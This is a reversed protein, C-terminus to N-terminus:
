PGREVRRRKAPKSDEAAALRAQRRAASLDAGSPLVLTHRRQWSVFADNLAACLQGDIDDGWLRGANSCRNHALTASRIFLTIETEGLVRSNHVDSDSSRPAHIVQHEPALISTMYVHGPGSPVDITTGDSQWLRLTPDGFLRVCLVVLGRGGDFHRPMLVQTPLKRQIHLQPASFLISLWDSHIVDRVNRWKEPCKPGSPVVENKFAAEIDPRLRRQTEAAMANGLERLAAENHDLFWRGFVCGMEYPLPGTNDLANITAAPSGRGLHGTVTLKVTGHPAVDETCRNGANETKRPRASFSLELREQCEDRFLDDDRMEALADEHLCAEAIVVPGYFGPFDHAIRLAPREEFWPLRYIDECTPREAPDLAFPASLARKAAISISANQWLNSTKEGAHDKLDFLPQHQFIKVLAPGGFYKVYTSSLHREEGRAWSKGLLVELATCGISWTDVPPGFAVDGYRIEPARYPWTTVRLGRAQVDARTPFTRASPLACVASGFDALKLQHGGLEKDASCTIMVFNAPKIDTHIIQRSHVHSGAALASKFVARCESIGHRKVLFARLDVPALPFVLGLVGGHCVVDLIHNVNPHTQVHVNYQLEELADAPCDRKPVKIAVEAGTSDDRARFVRGFTGEHLVGSELAYPGLADRQARLFAFAKFPLTSTRPECDRPTSLSAVPSADAGRLPPRCADVGRVTPEGDPQWPAAPWPFAGVDRGWVVSQIGDPRPGCVSPISQGIYRKFAAYSKAALGTDSASSWSFLWSDASERAYHEFAKMRKGDALSIASSVMAQADTDGPPHLWLRVTATM